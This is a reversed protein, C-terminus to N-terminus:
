KKVQAHSKLASILPATYDTAPIPLYQNTALTVAVYGGLDTVRTIMAYKYHSVNGIAPQSVVVDGDTLEYVYEVVDNACHFRFYNEANQPASRRIFVVVVWAFMDVVAFFIVGYIASSGDDLLFFMLALLVILCLVAIAMSLLPKTANRSQKKFVEAIQPKTLSFSFKTEM